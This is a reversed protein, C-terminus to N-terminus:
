GQQAQHPFPVVNGIDSSRARHTESYCHFASVKPDIALLPRLCEVVKPFVIERYDEADAKSVWVSIGAVLRPEEESILTMHEVYGHRQRVLPVVEEEILRCLEDRKEPLTILSVIRAYKM